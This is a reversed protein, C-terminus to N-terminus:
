MKSKSLSQIQYHLPEQKWILDLARFNMAIVIISSLSARIQTQLYLLLNLPTYGM